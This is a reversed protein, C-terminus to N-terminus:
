EYYLNKISARLLYKKLIKALTKIFYVQNKELMTKKADEVIFWFIYFYEFLMLLIDTGFVVKM